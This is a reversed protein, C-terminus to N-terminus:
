PADATVNAELMAGALMVMTGWGAVVHLWDEWDVSAILIQGDDQQELSKLKGDVGLGFLQRDSLFLDYERRWAIENSARWVTQRTPLPVLVFGRLLSCVVASDIDIVMNILRAVTAIRRRSEHFIWEAFTNVPNAKGYIYEANGVSHVLNKSVRHLTLLLLGDIDNPTQTGEMMRMLLYVLISQQAALLSWNSYTDSKEWLKELETKITRWVFSRTHPHRLKWIQTVSMCNVLSDPPEQMEDGFGGSLMKPHIFPPLTEKREAMAPFSALLRWLLKTSLQAHIGTPKRSVLSRTSPAVMSQPIVFPMDLSFNNAQSFADVRPFLGTTGNMDLLPANIPPQSASVSVPFKSLAARALTHNLPKPSQGLAMLDALSHDALYPPFLGGFDLGGPDSSAVNGDASITVSALLQSSFADLRGGAAEAGHDHNEQLGQIKQLTSEDYQCELSKTACSSCRPLASNCRTKAQTCQICSRKRHARQVPDKQRGLCDNTRTRSSFILVLRKCYYGHRKM